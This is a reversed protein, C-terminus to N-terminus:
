LRCHHMSGLSPWWNKSRRRRVTSNWSSRIFRSASNVWQLMRCGGRSRSSRHSRLDRWLVSVALSRWLAVSGLRSYRGDFLWYREGSWLEVAFSSEKGAKNNLAALRNSVERAGRAGRKLIGVFLERKGSRIRLRAGRGPPRPGMGTNLV